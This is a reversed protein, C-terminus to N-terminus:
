IPSSFSYLPFPAINSNSLEQQNPPNLEKPALKIKVMLVDLIKKNNRRQVHSVLLDRSVVILPLWGVVKGRPATEFTRLIGFTVCDCFNDKAPM